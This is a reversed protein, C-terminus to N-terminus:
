KKPVNTYLGYKAFLTLCAKSNLNNLDKIYLSYVLTLIQCIPNSMAIIAAYVSSNRENALFNNIHNIAAPFGELDM